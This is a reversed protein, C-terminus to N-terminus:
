LMKKKLELLGAHGGRHMDDFERIIKSGPTIRRCNAEMAQLFTITLLQLNLPTSEGETGSWLRGRGEAARTTLCCPPANRGHDFRIANVPLQPLPVIIRVPTKRRQLCGLAGSQLTSLRKVIQM